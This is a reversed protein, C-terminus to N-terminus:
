WPSVSLVTPSDFEGTVEVDADAFASGTATGVSITAEGDQSVGAMSWLASAEGAGDLAFEIGAGTPSVATSASRVEGLSARVQLTGGSAPDGACDTASVDVQTVGLTASGAVLTGSAVALSLPGAPQGDNDGVWVDATASAAAPRKARTKRGM